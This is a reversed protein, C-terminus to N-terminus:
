SSTALWHNQQTGHAMFKQQGFALLLVMPIMMQAFPMCTNHLTNLREASNLVPCHSLADAVTNEEGKIYGIKADFQSMFEMWCVQRHSLDKQANFNELTKPNTYVFFESGLLDVHWKKLAQIIALLEKKHVPYNLEAGKFTM